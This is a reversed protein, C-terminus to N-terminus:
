TVKEVHIPTCCTIIKPICREKLSRSQPPRDDAKVKETFIHVKYIATVHAPIVTCGHMLIQNLPELRRPCKTPIGFFSKPAVTELGYMMVARVVIREDGKM